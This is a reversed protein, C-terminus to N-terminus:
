INENVACTMGPAERPGFCQMCSTCEVVDEPRGALTKSVMEPDAILGRGVAVMDALGDQLANEVQKLRLVGGVAIVPISVANKIEGALKILDGKAAAQLMKPGSDMGGGSVNIIDLSDDIFMRILECSEGVTLGDDVFEVVSMRLGLVYDEGVLKRTRQLIERVIRARNEINGGYQDTRKNSAPSMFQNLLFNHAGHLEVMEAGAKKANEATQVFQGIIEEIEDATLEHPVNKTAPSPIASPGVIKDGALKPNMVRGGHNIQVAPVSGGKGIAAFLAKGSDVHRDEYLCFANGGLRSYPNIGTAGVITLGVKNKAINQYFSIHRETTEGNAAAYDTQLGGPQRVHNKERDPSQHGKLFGHSGGQKSLV